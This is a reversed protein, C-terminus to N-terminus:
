LNFPTLYANFYLQNNKRQSGKMFKPPPLKHVIDKRTFFAGDDNDIVFLPKDFNGSSQVKKLFVAEYENDDFSDIRAIYLGPNEGYM